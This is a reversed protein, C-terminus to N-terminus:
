IVLYTIETYDNFTVPWHTCVSCADVTAVSHCHHLHLSIYVTIFQSCFLVIASPVRVSFCSLSYRRAVAVWLMMSQVKESVVFIATFLVGKSVYLFLGYYSSLM